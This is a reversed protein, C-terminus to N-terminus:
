NNYNPYLADIFDKTQEDIVWPKVYIPDPTIEILWANESYITEVIKM